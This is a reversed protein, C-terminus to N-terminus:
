SNKHRGRQTPHIPETLAREVSWKCTKIRQRITDANMQLEEAWTPLPKRQGRFELMAVNRRNRTQEKQTAWKVDALFAEFNGAWETDVTIGRGGYHKYERHGPNLCRSKLGVWAQYTPNIPPRGWGHTRRLGSWRHCNCSIVQGNVLATGPASKVNGCECKCSWMRNGNKNTGSRGIVTLKGFTRGTLDPLSM